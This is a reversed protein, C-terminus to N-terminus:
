GWRQLSSISSYLIMKPSSPFINEIVMKNRNCWLSWILGATMFLCFSQSMHLNPTGWDCFLTDVSRPIHNLGFIQSWCGWIFKAMICYFFIHDTTEHGRCLNCLISCKWGRKKFRSGVPDEQQIGAMFLGQDEFTIQM